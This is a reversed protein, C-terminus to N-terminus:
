LLVAILAATPIIISCLQVESSPQQNKKLLDEERWCVSLGAVDDLSGEGSVQWRRLSALSVNPRHLLSHTDDSSSSTHLYPYPFVNGSQRIDGSECFLELLPCTLKM